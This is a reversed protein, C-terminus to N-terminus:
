GSEGHFYPSQLIDCVNTPANIGDAQSVAAFVAPLTPADFNTADWLERWQDTYSQDSGLCPRSTAHVSAAPETADGTWSLGGGDHKIAEVLLAHAAKHKLRRTAEDALSAHLTTGDAPDPTHAGHM